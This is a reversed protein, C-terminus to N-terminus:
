AGARVSGGDVAVRLRLRAHAATDQNHRTVAAALERPFAEVLRGGSDAPPLLLFMGYGCDQRDRGDWSVGSAALASGMMRDLHAAADNRDTSFWSEFEEIKVCLVSRRVPQASARTGASM